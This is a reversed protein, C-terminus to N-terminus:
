NMDTIECTRNDQERSAQKGCKPCDFWDISSSM